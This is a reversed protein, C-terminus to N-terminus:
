PAPRLIVVPIERKTRREYRSYFPNRQKLLPWLRAREAPDARSATVHKRENRIQIVADPNRQLNLWWAPHFDAGSNSGVVLLREGDVLYPLVVDRQEGSKRGTTTLILMDQGGMRAGLRGQSLRYVAGHVKGFANWISM